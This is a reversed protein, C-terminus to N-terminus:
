GWNKMFQNTFTFIFREELVIVLLEETFPGGIIKARIAKRKQLSKQCTQTM